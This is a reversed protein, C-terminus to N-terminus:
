LLSSRSAPSVFYGNLLISRKAQFPTVEKEFFRRCTERFMQHEPTYHAALATVSRDELSRHVFM